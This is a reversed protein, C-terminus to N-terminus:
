KSLMKEAVKLQELLEEDSLDDMKDQTSQEREERALVAMQQSFIQFKKADALTMGKQDSSLNLLTRMENEIVNYADNMIRAVHPRRVVTPKIIRLRGPIETISTAQEESREFDDDKRLSM